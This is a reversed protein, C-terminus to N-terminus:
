VALLVPRGESWGLPRRSRRLKENSRVTPRPTTEVSPEGARLSKDTPSWNLCRAAIPPSFSRASSAAKSDTIELHIASARTACNRASSCGVANLDERPQRALRAFIFM